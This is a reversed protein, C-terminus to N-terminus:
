KQQLEILVEPPFKPFQSVQNSPSTPISNRLAVAPPDFPNPDSTLEVLCKRLLWAIAEIIESDSIRQKQYECIAKAFNKINFGVPFTKNDTVIYIRTGRKLEEEVFRNIRDKAIEIEAETTRTLRSL